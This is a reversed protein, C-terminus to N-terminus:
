GVTARRRRLEAAGVLVLGAGLIVMGSSTPGSTDAGTRALAGSGVRATTTTSALTTSTTTTTVQAVVLTTITVANNGLAPDVTAAANVSAEEVLPPDDLSTVTATNVVTSGVTTSGALQVVLTFTATAGNPLTDWFAEVEGGSGVPPVDLDATPGGTQTLSVFTTGAPVTDELLAELATDPGANHVGLTYTITGGVTVTAPGTKTVQLDSSLDVVADTDTDSNNDVDPDLQPQAAVLNVTQDISDGADADNSVTGTVTYTLTGGASFSFGSENLDGTGSAAPCTEGGTAACTWSVDELIAPVDDIVSADLNSPGNNTAVITYVVEQGPKVSTVGDTKTVSLDASPVLTDTDAATNNAPDDTGSTPDITISATVIGIASSPIALPITYTVSGGPSLSATDNISGTGAAAGCGTGACTWNGVTGQTFTPSITPQAADPGANAVVLTYTSTTGPVATASGDTISTSIENDFTVGASAAGPSLVLLVTALLATALASTLAKTRFM